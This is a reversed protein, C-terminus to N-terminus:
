PSWQVRVCGSFHKAEMHREFVLIDDDYNTWAFSYLCRSRWIDRSQSYNKRGKMSCTVLLMCYQFGSHIAKKNPHLLLETTWSLINCVKYQRDLFTLWKIAIIARKCITRCTSNQYRFTIERPAKEIHVVEIVSDIGNFLNFLFSLLNAYMM